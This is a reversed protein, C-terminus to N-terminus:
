LPKWALIASRMFLNKDIDSVGRFGNVITGITEYEFMMYKCLLRVKKNNPPSSKELYIWEKNNDNDIRKITLFNDIKYNRMHEYSSEIHFDIIKDKIDTILGNVFEDVEKENNENFTFMSRIFNKLEVALAIENEKM